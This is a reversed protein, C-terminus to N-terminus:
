KLFMVLDLRTFPATSEIVLNNSDAWTKYKGFKHSGHRRLPPFFPFVQHDRDLRRISHHKPGNRDRPSQNRIDPSVSRRYSSSSGSGGGYSRMKGSSSYKSAYGRGNEYYDKDFSPESIRPLKRAHMKPCFYKFNCQFYDIL